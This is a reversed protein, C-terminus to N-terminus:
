GIGLGSKRTRPHPDAAELAPSGSGEGRTSVTQDQDGALGWASCPWDRDHAILGERRGAALQAPYPEQHVLKAGLWLFGQGKRMQEWRFDAQLM